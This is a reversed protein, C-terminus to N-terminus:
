RLWRSLYYGGVGAVFGVAAGVPAGIGTPSGILAGVGAGTLGAALAGTGEAVPESAGLSRAGSEALNGVVGGVLASGGVIPVAEAATMLPTVLAPAGSTYAVYAAGQLGLEAEVVGPVVGRV